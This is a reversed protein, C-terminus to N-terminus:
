GAEKKFSNEKGKILRKINDRHTYLFLVPMFLGYVYLAPELQNQGIFTVPIMTLSFAFGAAISAISVIRTPLFVILFVIIGSAVGIPFLMLSVGMATNVGKGGKLKLWIPFIHGLVAIIGPVVTQWSGIPKQTLLFAILIAAIGKSLDLLTVIFFYKKGLTRAVNTAGTSGSGSKRIDIGKKLKVIIFGFPMSGILYALIIAIIPYIM